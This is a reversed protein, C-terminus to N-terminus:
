AALTRGRLDTEVAAVSDLTDKPENTGDRGYDQACAVVMEAAADAPIEDTNITLDYYSSDLWDIKYAQWFFDQKLKDLEAITRMAEERSTQQEQALCLVRERFSSRVLVKLVSTYDRLVIQSGHGIIVAKGEIALRRVVEEVAARREELFLTQLAERAIQPTQVILGAPVEEELFNATWLRRMLRDVFPQGADEAETQALASAKNTIDWDYYRYGLKAAALQGIAFGSSGIQVSFTVVSAPM